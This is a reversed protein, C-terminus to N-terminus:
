SQVERFIVICLGLLQARCFSLIPCVQLDFVMKRTGDAATHVSRLQLGGDVTIRDRWLDRAVIGTLKSPM